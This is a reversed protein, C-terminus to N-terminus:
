HDQPGNCEESRRVWLIRRKEKEVGIEKVDNRLDRMEGIQGISSLSAPRPVPSVDGWGWDGSWVREPAASVSFFLGGM